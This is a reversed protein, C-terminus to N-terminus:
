GMLSVIVIDLYIVDDQDVVKFSEFDFDNVKGLSAYWTARTSSPRSPPVRLHLYGM